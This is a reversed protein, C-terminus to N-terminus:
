ERNGKEALEQIEMHAKQLFEIEDCIKPVCREVLQRLLIYVMGNLLEFVSDVLEDYGKQAEKKIFDTMQSYFIASHLRNKELAVRKQEERGENAKDIAIQKKLQAIEAEHEKKKKQIEAATSASWKKGCLECTDNICPNENNCEDCTWYWM